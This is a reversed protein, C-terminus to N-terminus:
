GASSVSWALADLGSISARWNQLIHTYNAREYAAPDPTNLLSMSGRAQSLSRYEHETLWLEVGDRIASLHRPGQRLLSSVMQVADAGSMVAKIADAVTHVGGTIALDSKVQGWLTAVGRLRLLLDSSNSLHLTRKMELEEIDIDAQYFRNFLILGRVGLGDLKRAFNPLSSYFPSLKVAIPLKVADRVMKVLDLDRQEMEQGTVTPDVAVHYLNLELADAGAEEIMTAYRVWGGPTQGNLSACVPVSVSQKIKRVRELYDEPGISFGEPEPLYSLAEAFQNQSSDVARTTAVSESRVQEEFLSPMVILGAGAEELMRAGDPTESMPSAGAIFPHDLKFGLYTTSMDM